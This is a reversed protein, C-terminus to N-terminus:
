IKKNWSSLFLLSIELDMCMNYLYSGVHLDLKCTWLIYAIFSDGQDVIPFLNAIKM